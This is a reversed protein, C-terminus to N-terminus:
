RWRLWPTSTGGMFVQLLLVLVILVIAVWVITRIPDPVAFAALLQNTAWLVALLIILTVVITLLPM